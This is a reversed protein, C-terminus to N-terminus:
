KNKCWKNYIEIVHANREIQTLNLGSKYKQPTFIKQPENVLLETQQENLINVGVLEFITM